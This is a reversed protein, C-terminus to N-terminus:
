LPLTVHGPRLREILNKRVIEGYFAGVTVTKKHYYILDLALRHLGQGLNKEYDRIPVEVHGDSGSLDGMYAEILGYM